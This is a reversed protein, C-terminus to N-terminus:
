RLEPALLCSGPTSMLPATVPIGSDSAGLIYYSYLLFIDVQTRYLGVISRSYEQLPERSQPGCDMGKLGSSPELQSPQELRIDVDMYAM